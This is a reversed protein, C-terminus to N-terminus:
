NFCFREGNGGGSGSGFSWRLGFNSFFTISFRDCIIPETYVAGVKSVESKACNVLVALRRYEKSTLYKKVKYLYSRFDIKRIQHNPFPSKTLLFQTTIPCHMAFFTPFYLYDNRDSRSARKSSRCSTEQFYCVQLLWIIKKLLPKALFHASQRCLLTIRILLNFFFQLSQLHQAKLLCSFSIM